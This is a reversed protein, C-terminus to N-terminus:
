HLLKNTQISTKSENSSYCLNMALIVYISILHCLRRFTSVIPPAGIITRLCARVLLTYPCAGGSFNKFNPARLNSRLGYKYEFKYKSEIGGSYRARTNKSRREGHEPIASVQKPNMALIAYISILHNQIRLVPLSLRFTTVRQDEFYNNHRSKNM